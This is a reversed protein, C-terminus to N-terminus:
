KSAAEPPNVGPMLLARPAAPHGLEAAQASGVKSWLLITPGPASVQTIHEASPGPISLQLLSLECKIWGM